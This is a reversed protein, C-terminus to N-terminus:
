SILFENLLKSVIGSKICLNGEFLELWSAWFFAWHQLLKLNAGGTAMNLFWEGAVGLHLYGSEMGGQANFSLRKQDHQSEPNNPTSVHASM